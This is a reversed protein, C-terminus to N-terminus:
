PIERFGTAAVGADREVRLTADLKTGVDLDSERSRRSRSAPTAAVDM